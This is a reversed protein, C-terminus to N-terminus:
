GAIGAVGAFWFCSSGDGDVIRSGALWLDAPVAVLAFYQSALECLDRVIAGAGCNSVLKCRHARKGSVGAVAGAGVFAAVCLDCLVGGDGPSIWRLGCAVCMIVLWCHERWLSAEIWLPGASKRGAVTGARIGLRLGLVVMGTARQKLHLYARRCRTASSRYCRATAM